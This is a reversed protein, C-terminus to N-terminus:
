PWRLEVLMVHFLPAHHSTVMLKFDMADLQGAAAVNIVGVDATSAVGLPSLDGAMLKDSASQAAHLELKHVRCSIRALTTQPFASAAAHIYFYKKSVKGDVATTKPPIPPPARPVPREPVSVSAATSPASTQPSSSTQATASPQQVAPTAPTSLISDPGLVPPPPCKAGTSTFAVFANIDQLPNFTNVLVLDKWNTDLANQYLKLQMNAYQLSSQALTECRQTEIMQLQRLIAPMDTTFHKNVKINCLDVASAQSRTVLCSIFESLTPRVWDRRLQALKTKTQDIKASLKEVKESVGGRLLTDREVTMFGLEKDTKYFNEQAKVAAAEAQSRERILENARTEVASRQAEAFM